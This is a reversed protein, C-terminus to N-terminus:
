GRIEEVVLEEGSEIAVAIRELLAEARSPPGSPLPDGVFQDVQDPRVLMSQPARQLAPESVTQVIQQDIAAAPSGSILAQYADIRDLAARTGQVAADQHRREQAVLRETEEVVERTAIAQQQLARVQDLQQETAGAQALRWIQIDEPSMGATAIEQQLDAMAQGVLRQTSAAREAAAAGEQMKGVLTIWTDSLGRARLDALQIEDASMGVTDIQRQLADILSYTDDRLSVYAQGAAAQQQMAAVTRLQAETVGAQALKWREAEDASYGTVAIQEQLRATVQDLADLADQNVVLPNVAANQQALENRARNMNERLVDVQDSNVAILDRNAQWFNWWARSENLEANHQQVAEIQRQTAAIYAELDETATGTVDVQSISQMSAALDDFMRATTQGAETVDYLWHGVQYGVIASAAGAAALGAPGVTALGVSAMRSAVSVGALAKSVATYSIVLQGGIAVAGAGATAVAGLGVAAMGTYAIAAKTTDGFTNFTEAAWRTAEAVPVLADAIFKGIEERSDGVANTMQAFAGATTQAEAEASAFMNALLRQAEAARLAPDEINRLERMYRQLMPTDGTELAATMRIAADASMGFAAGLSIANRAAREAAEGTAGMTEAQALLGLTVEDGIVTVRQMEAAFAMYQRTQEETATGRARMAAALQTEAAEQVQYASVMERGMLAMGGTTVAVMATVAAAANRLQTATQEATQGTERMTDAAQAHQQELKQAAAAYQEASIAGKDQLQELATLEAAYATAPDISERFVKNQLALEQRTLTVGRQFQQADAVIQYALRSIRTM